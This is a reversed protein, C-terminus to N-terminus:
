IFKPHEIGIVLYGFCCSLLGAHSRDNTATELVPEAAAKVMLFSVARVTLIAVVVGFGDPVLRGM